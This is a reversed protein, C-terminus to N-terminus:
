HLWKEKGALGSLVPSHQDKHVIRFIVDAANHAGEMNFNPSRPNFSALQNMENALSAGNLHHPMLMRGVGWYVLRQARTIQEQTDNDGCPVFLCPTRTSMANIATSYGCQSVSLQVRSMEARIDRVERILSLGPVGDALTSLRDWDKSPLQPGTVIKM